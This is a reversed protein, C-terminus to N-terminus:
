NDWEYCYYSPFQYRLEKMEERFQRDSEAFAKDKEKTIERRKDEYQFITLTPEKVTEGKEDVTGTLEDLLEKTKTLYEKTAAEERRRARLMLRAKANIYMAESIKRKKDEILRKDQEDKLQQQAVKVMSAEGINKNRIEDMINDNTAVTTAPQEVKAPAPKQNQKAM